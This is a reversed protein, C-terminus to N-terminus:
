TQPPAAVAPTATHPGLSSLSQHSSATTRVAETTEALWEDNVKWQSVLYRFHGGRVRLTASPTSALMVLFAADINSVYM